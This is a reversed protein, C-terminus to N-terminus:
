EQRKDRQREAIADNCVFHVDAQEEHEGDHGGFDEADNEDAVTRSAFPGEEAAHAFNQHRAASVFAALSHKGNEAAHALRAEKLKPDYYDNVSDFGVVSHGLSLLRQAVHFGIFGAAGTVLIAGQKM